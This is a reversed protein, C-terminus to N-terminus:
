DLSRVKHRGTWHRSITSISGLSFAVFGLVPGWIQFAIWFLDSSHRWVLENLLAMGGSFGILLLTMRSQGARDFSLENSLMLSELRPRFAAMHVALFAAAGAYYLTPRMKIFTEDHLWLTLGGM